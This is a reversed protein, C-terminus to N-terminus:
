VGARIIIQSFTAWWLVSVLGFIILLIVCSGGIRKRHRARKKERCLAIIDITLCAPGVPLILSAAFIVTFVVALVNKVGGEPLMNILSPTDLLLVLWILCCIGQIIFTTKIVKGSKM